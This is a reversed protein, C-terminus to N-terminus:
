SWRSSEQLGEPAATWWTCDVMVGFANVLQEKEERYLSGGGYVDISISFNHVRLQSM